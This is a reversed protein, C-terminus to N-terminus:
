GRSTGRTGAPRTRGARASPCGPRWRAARSGRQDAHLRPARRREGARQHEVVDGRVHVLAVRRQDVPPRLRQGEVAVQQALQEPASSSRSSSSASARASSSSSSCNRVGSRAAPEASATCSRRRRSPSRRASSTAARTRPAPRAPGRPPLPRTARPAPRPDARPRPACGRRPASSRRHLVDGAVAIRSPTAAAPRRAAPTGRATPRRAPQGASGSPAAGRGTGPRRARPASPVAPRGVDLASSSRAARRRCTQQAALEPGAPTSRSHHWGSTSRSSRRRESALSRRSISGTSGCASARKRGRQCPTPSRRVAADVPERFDDGLQLARRQRGAHEFAVNQRRPHRTSAAAARRARRPRRPRRSRGRTARGPRRRSDRQVPGVPQRQQRPERALRGVGRQVSSAARPSGRRVKGLAAGREVAVEQGRRQTRAASRPSRGTRSRSRSSASHSRTQAVSTVLSVNAGSRASRQGRDPEAPPCARCRSRPRAERRRRPHTRGLGGTAPRQDAVGSAVATASRPPSRASRCPVAGRGPAAVARRM